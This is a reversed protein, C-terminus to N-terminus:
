RKVADLLDAADILAAALQRAQASNLPTQADLYLILREDDGIDRGEWQEFNLEAFERGEPRDIRAMSRRHAITDRDLYPDYIAARPHDSDCWEPCVRVTGTRRLYEAYVGRQGTADIMDQVRQRNEPTPEPIWGDATHTVLLDGDILGQRALLDADLDAWAEADDPRGFPPVLPLDARNHQDQSLSM